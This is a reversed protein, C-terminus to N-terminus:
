VSSLKWEDSTRSLMDRPKQNSHERGALFATCEDAQLPRALHYGQGFHCGLQQLAEVQTAHEIGEAVTRLELTEALAMIGRVLAVEGHAVADVFSKDIKLIDVPFRQLYSLSSYGTGFDDIALNVGLAKLDRLQRLTTEINQMIVSETIELVIGHPDLGSACLAYHLDDVITGEHLQRGSVNVAIALPATTLRMTQWLRAQTCAETLVWRSFPIILGTEEALPIFEAPSIFGRVPHKWRALAEVGTVAGSALCIIPQYHLLLEGGDLAQRLDAELQLRDLVATHMSREFVQYHGKGRSKARYMALDANRLLEVVGEIGHRYAIGLSASVHVDKGELAIPALMAALIREAVAVAESDGDLGPLLVAFEDGGLRAVTDCGRTNALLREAM